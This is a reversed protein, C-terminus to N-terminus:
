ECLMGEQVGFAELSSMVGNLAHVPTLNAGMVCRGGARRLGGSLHPWRPSPAVQHGYAASCAVLRWARERAGGAGRLVCACLASGLGKEPAGTWKSVVGEQWLGSSASPSGASRFRRGRDWLLARPSSDPECGLRPQNSLRRSKM